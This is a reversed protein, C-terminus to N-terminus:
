WIPPRWNTTPAEIPTAYQRPTFVAASSIRSASRAMYSAFAPPLPRTTLWPRADAPGPASCPPSCGGLRAGLPRRVPRRAGASCPGPRVSFPAGSTQGVPRRADASSPDGSRGGSFQSSPCTRYTSVRVAAAAQSPPARRSLTYVMRVMEM